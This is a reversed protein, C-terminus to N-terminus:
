GPMREHGDDHSLHAAQLFGTWVAQAVIRALPVIEPLAHLSHPRSYPSPSPNQRPDSTPRECLREKEQM